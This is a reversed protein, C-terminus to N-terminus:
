LPLKIPPQISLDILDWFCPMGPWGPALVITVCQYTQMKTGAQTICQLVVQPYAYGQLNDWPISRADVKWANLDPVPSVYTPLKPINCVHGCTTYAMNSMDKSLSQSTTVMQGSDGQETQISCQGSCQPLLPHTSSESQCQSINGLVLKEM